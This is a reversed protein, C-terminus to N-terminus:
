FAGRCLWIFYNPPIEHFIYKIYLLKKKGSRFGLVYALGENKPKVAFCVSGLTEIREMFCTRRFCMIPPIQKQLDKGTGRVFAKLSVRIIRSFRAKEGSKM